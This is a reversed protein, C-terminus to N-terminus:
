PTNFAHVLERRRDREAPFYFTIRDLYGAYKRQLQQVLEDPRAVVAFTELMEDSIEDAMATWEGRKSRETLRRATESWGHMALVPAYAPTSAYFAIQQKVRQKQKDLEASDEGTVVFVSSLLEIDSRSRGAAALGESLKPLIAQDLYQISHLPHVHFGDSLEGALRCMYENVGAIHLKPPAVPLPGPNFFPTMLTYNYFRGEFSPRSGNQWSDWIARIMQLMERLRPGPQEWKVGFRRENHAKVQTGLGLVFRGRSLAQLDWAIQALVMPSRAFAVAISTGLLVRSTNQAALVLPLFPDHSTESTWLGAYGLEEAARAADGCAGLPASALGTDLKM